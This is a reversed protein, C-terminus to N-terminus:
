PNGTLGPAHGDVRKGCTQALAIKALVGSDAYIVGPYNMMEALAPIREHNMFASLESAGLVAGSTEMDTAPVCSPLSYRVNLPQDKASDLMYRIGETGLVNAIEHPDAVVTTTGYYSRIAYM